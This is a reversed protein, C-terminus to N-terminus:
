VKLIKIFPRVYGMSAEFKSHISVLGQVELVGLNVKPAMPNYVHM